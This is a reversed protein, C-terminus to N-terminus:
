AASTDALSRDVLPAIKMLVPEPDVGHGELAEGLPRRDCCVELGLQALIPSTDPTSDVLDAVTMGAIADLVEQPVVPTASM